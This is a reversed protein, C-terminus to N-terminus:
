QALRKLEVGVQVRVFLLCGHAELNIIQSRKRVVFKPCSFNFKSFLGVDVRNMAEILKSFDHRKRFDVFIQRVRKM